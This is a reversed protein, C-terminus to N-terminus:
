NMSCDAALKIPFDQSCHAFVTDGTTSLNHIIFHLSVHSGSTLPHGSGDRVVAQYNILQPAQANSIIVSALLALSTFLARM